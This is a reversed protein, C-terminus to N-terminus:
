TNPASNTGNSMPAQDRRRVLVRDIRLGDMDVVELVHSGVTVSDGVVPVRGLRALVMGALTSYDGREEPPVEPLGLRERVTDYPELGDVLWSGDERQVFPRDGSNSDEDPMEGVLEELVDTLTLLGAVQGYEDLVLGLHTGKQRFVTLVEDIPQHEFVFVPERLLPRLEAPEHGALARLLDKAYLVGVINDLSGDQVPLRSYGARLFTEAIEPLPTGVDVATIETRPTMVLRVPRDTFRFVRNIFQAEGAEVTGSATGERVMYVIDEETVSQDGARHQGILRLVLNASGTLLAVAPRIVKAMGAMFPASLMAFREAHLLALRKPVLEGLLMTLYAIPLVVLVLALAKRGDEYPALAPFQKLWETLQEGLQDGGFAATFTGILEIGVGATALFLEPKEALHLAQKAGKNGARALTELRSARAQVIALEAAAFFGNALILIVIVAVEIGFM